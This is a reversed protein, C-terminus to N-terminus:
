KLHSMERQNLGYKLRIDKIDEPSLLNYRERYIDFFKRQNEKDLEEHFIEEGCEQCYAVKSEIEIEEGKVTYIEDKRKVEYEVFDDCKECYITDVM